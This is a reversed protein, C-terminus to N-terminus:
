FVSRFFWISLADIYSLRNRYTGNFSNPVLAVDLGICPVFHHMLYMHSCSWVKADDDNSNIYSNFHNFFLCVFYVDAITFRHTPTWYCHFTRHVRALQIFSFASKLWDPDKSNVTQQVNKDRSLKYLMIEHYRQNFARFCLDGLPQRLIM